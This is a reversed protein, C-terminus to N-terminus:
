FPWTSPCVLSSPRQGRTKLSKIPDIIRRPGRTAPLSRPCPAGVANLRLSRLLANSAQELARGRLPAGLPHPQTPPHALDGIVVELRSAHLRARRAGRKFSVGLQRSIRARGPLASDVVGGNVTPPAGAGSSRWGALAAGGRRGAKSGDRRWAAWAGNGGERERERSEGRVGGRMAEPM